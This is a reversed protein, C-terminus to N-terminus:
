LWSICGILLMLLYLSSKATHGTGPYPRRLVSYTAKPVVTPVGNITTSIFITTPITYEQYSLLIQTNDLVDTLTLIPRTTTPPFWSSSTTSTPPDPNMNTTTSTDDGAPTIKPPNAVPTPISKEGDSSEVKGDGKGPVPGPEMDVQEGSDGTTDPVSPKDTQQPNSMPNSADTKQPEPAAGVACIHNKGALAIFAYILLLIKELRM